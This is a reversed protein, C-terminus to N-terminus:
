TPTLVIDPVCTTDQRTTIEDRPSAAPERARSFICRCERGMRDEHSSPGIVTCAAHAKYLTMPRSYGGGAGAPTCSEDDRLLTCTGPTRQIPVDRERTHSFEMERYPAADWVSEVLLWRRLLNFQVKAGVASCEPVNVSRDSFQTYLCDSESRKRWEYVAGNEQLRLLPSLPPWIFGNPTKRIRRFLPVHKFPSSIPLHVACLALIQNGVSPPPQDHSLSPQQGNIDLPYIHDVLPDPGTVLSM